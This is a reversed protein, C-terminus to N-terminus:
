FLEEVSVTIATTSFVFIAAATDTTKSSGAPVFLGTTASVGSAGQFFAASTLPSLTVKQRGTRAAVVQTATNAPVAVQATAINAGGKSVVYAGIADGPQPVVIAGTWLGAQVALNAPNRAFGSGIFGITPALNSGASQTSSSGIAFAPGNSANVVSLASGADASGNGRVPVTAGDSAYTVRSADTATGPGTAGSGGGGSGARYPAGTQPDILVVNGGSM